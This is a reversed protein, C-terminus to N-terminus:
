VYPSQLESTHEESRHMNLSECADAAAFYAKCWALQKSERAEYVREILARLDPTLIRMVGGPKLVRFGEAIFRKGGDLDVHEIFDESHIYDITNSRFPLAFSADTCVDVPPASLFDINIWGAIHHGGSGVHVAVPKADVRRLERDRADALVRLYEGIVSESGEPGAYYARQLARLRRRLTFQRM